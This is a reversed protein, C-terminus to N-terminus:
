PLSQAWVGVRDLLTDRDAVRLYGTATGKPVRYWLMDSYPVSDYHSQSVSVRRPQFDNQRLRSQTWVARAKVCGGQPGERVLGILFM